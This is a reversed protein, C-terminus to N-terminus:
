SVPPHTTTSGASGRERKVIILRVVEEVEKTYRVVVVM